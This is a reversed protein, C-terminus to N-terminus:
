RGWFQRLHPALDGPREEPFLLKAGDVEIVDRAGPIMERLAYAWKIGFTNEEGTGWVMLTPVRLTRLGPTAAALDAPDFAAMMREVDRARQLQEGSGPGYYERWVEDSVKAPDEYLAALPGAARSAPDANVGAFGEALKGQRALEVMPAFDPPPFNGDTDGNTLTFSRLRAPHRAAFIQCIAGGTDNGVLDVQDIGLARCLEELVEAMAAVSMDARAPTGGHAPLDIAICRSAPSLQEMVNRWMLGGTALGHVFLAAPAGADGFETYAITGGDAPVTRRHAIFTRVDM